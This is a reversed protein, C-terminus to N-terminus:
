ESVELVTHLDWRCSECIGADSLEEAMEGSEVWWGCLPCTEINRDLLAEEVEEISADLEYKDIFASPSTPTGLAEDAIKDWQEETIM